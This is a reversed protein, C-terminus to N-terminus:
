VTPVELLATCRRNCCCKQPKPKLVKPQTLPLWRLVPVPGKASVLIGRIAKITRPLSNSVWQVVYVAWDDQVSPM